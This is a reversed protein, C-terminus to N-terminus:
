LETKIEEDDHQLKPFGNIGVVFQELIHLRKLVWDYTHDERAHEHQSHHTLKFLSKYKEYQEEKTEKKMRMIYRIQRQDCNETPMQINCTTGEMQSHYEGPMLMSLGHCIITMIILLSVHLQM